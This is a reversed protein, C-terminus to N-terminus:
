QLSIAISAAREVAPAPSARLRPRHGTRSQNTPSNWDRDWSDQRNEGRRDKERHDLSDDALRRGRRVYEAIEKQVTEKASAEFWDALKRAEDEVTV